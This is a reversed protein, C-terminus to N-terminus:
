EDKDEEHSHKSGLRSFFGTGFGAALFILIALGYALVSRSGVWSLTGNFLYWVLLNVPGAAALIWTNRRIRWPAPQGTQATASRSALALLGAILPTAIALLIMVNRVVPEEM